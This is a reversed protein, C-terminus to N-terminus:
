ARAGCSSLRRELARSGCSSFGVRRSGTSPLLLLWPLSFGACRLSCGVCGLIFIFLNIYFFSNILLSTTSSCVLCLAWIYTQAGGTYLHYQSGSSSIIFLFLRTYFFMLMSLIHLPCVCHLNPLLWPPLLFICLTGSRWPLRPFLYGSSSSSWYVLIRGTPWSLYPSYLSM